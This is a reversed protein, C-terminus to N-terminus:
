IAYFTCCSVDLHTDDTAEIKIMFQVAVSFPYPNPEITAEQIWEGNIYNTYLITNVLELHKLRISVTYM